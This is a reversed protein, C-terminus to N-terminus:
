SEEMKNELVEKELVEKIAKKRESKTKKLEDTDKLILYLLAVLLTIQLILRNLHFDVFGLSIANVIGILTIVLYFSIFNLNTKMDEIYKKNFLDIKKESLDELWKNNEYLEKNEERWDEKQKKTKKTLYKVIYIGLIVIFIGVIEIFRFGAFIIKDLITKSIHSYLLFTFGSGCIVGLIVLLISSKKDYKREQNALKEKDSLEVKIPEIKGDTLKNFLFKKLRGLM